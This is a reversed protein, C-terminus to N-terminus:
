LHRRRIWWFCFGALVLSATVCLALEYWQLTWYRRAPQYTVALHFKTSLQNICHQFAGQDAPARTINSPPTNPNVITPCAQQVYQNLAQSTPPRGTTDVLRSSIVWANAITPKGATFDPTFGLGTGSQLPRNVHAASVLHSRLWATTALRVGVFAALASAMAPLTRRILVGATVALIFALLGYGIVVVGRADFVGPNFRNGAAEDLPSAWWTVILSLIGSVAASILGVIGLKVALWRTRTVSQTWVLRQTGAEFERAVLPAGWFIGVIGPVAIVLIGLGTRLANDNRLFVTRATDCTGTAACTAVTTDYLHVLHPATIAAIVAVIALGAIAVATQLRFQLWTFRIM